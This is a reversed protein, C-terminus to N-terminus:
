KTLNLKIDNFAIKCITPDFDLNEDSSCDLNLYELNRFLSCAQRIVNQFIEASLNYMTYSVNMSFVSDLIFQDDYLDELDNMISVFFWKESDAPKEHVKYHMNTVDRWVTEQQANNMMLLDMHYDAKKKSTYSDLNTLLAWLVDYQNEDIRLRRFREIM